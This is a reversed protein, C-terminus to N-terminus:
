HKEYGKKRSVFLANRENRAIKSQVLGGILQCWPIVREDWKSREM